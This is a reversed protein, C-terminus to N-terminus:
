TQPIGVRPMGKNLNLVNHDVCTQQHGDEYTVVIQSDIITKNKYIGAINCYSHNMHLVINTKLDEPHLKPKAWLLGM